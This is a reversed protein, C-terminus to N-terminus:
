LGQRRVAHQHALHADRAPGVGAVQTLGSVEGAGNLVFSGAVVRQNFIDANPVVATVGTRVPVRASMSRGTARSRADHPRGARGRVDTIANWPGVPFRGISFGLDRLRQRMGAPGPARTGDHRRGGRRRRASGAGGSRPRGCRRERERRTGTRPAGRSPSSATTRRATARRTEGAQGDGSQGRRPGRRGPTRRAERRKDRLRKLGGELIDGILTRYEIGAATAILCLDSYGPTLGPLPNVEIVYFEGKPTIRLDVRAVDRCDLAAFTERAM